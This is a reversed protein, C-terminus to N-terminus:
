RSLRGAEVISDAISYEAEALGKASITVCRRGANNQLWEAAFADDLNILAVGDETLGQWIEAKARAVGELTGFGALHTGAVNTIHAIDPQVLGTTYAIEGAANAGMEVVVRDHEAEIALLTLPVGLHNNLNGRTVLVK